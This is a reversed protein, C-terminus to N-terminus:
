IFKYIWNNVIESVRDLHRKERFSHGCGCIIHIEKETELKDFFIKQHTPPTPIDEDGVILLIPMKINKIEKLLDYKCRDEMHSWPLKYGDRLQYGLSKWEDMVKTGYAKMSLEGSIVSSISIISKVRSSNKQAFLNISVGGLSHGALFFKEKYWEKDCSWSIVDELDSFYNSLTANEFSGESEGGITNTTDFLVTTFGNKKFLTKLTKFLPKDKNSGLGHMIFILEKDDKGFDVDICIKNGLRNKIFYKM